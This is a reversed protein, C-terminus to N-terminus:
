SSVFDISCITSKQFDITKLLKPEILFDINWLAIKGNKHGVAMRMNDSSISIATVGESVNKNVMKAIPQEDFDFVWVVGLNTGLYIYDDSLKITLAQGYTGEDDRPLVKHIHSLLTYSM